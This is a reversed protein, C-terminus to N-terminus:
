TKRGGKSKEIIDYTKKDIRQILEMENLGQVGLFYGDKNQFVIFGEELQFYRIIDKLDMAMM